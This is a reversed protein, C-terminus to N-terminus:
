SKVGGKTTQTQLDEIMNRVEDDMLEEMKKIEPPLLLLNKIWLLVIAAATLCLILRYDKKALAYLLTFSAAFSASFIDCDEGLSFAFFFSILHIHIAVLVIAVVAGNHDKLYKDLFTFLLLVAVQIVSKILTFAYPFKHLGPVHKRWRYIIGVGLGITYPYYVHLYCWDM